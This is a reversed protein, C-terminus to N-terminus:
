GTVATASERHLLSPPRGVWAFDGIQENLAHSVHLPM